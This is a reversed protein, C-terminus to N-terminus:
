YSVTLSSLPSFMSLVISWSCLLRIPREEVWNSSLNELICNQLFLATHSAPLGKVRCSLGLRFGVLINYASRYIERRFRGFDITYSDLEFARLAVEVCRLLIDLGM